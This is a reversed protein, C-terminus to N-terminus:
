DRDTRQPSTIRRKDFDIDVDEGRVTFYAVHGWGENLESEVNRSVTAPIPRAGYFKWHKESVTSNLWFLFVAGDNLRVYLYSTYGGVGSQSVDVFLFGDIKRLASCGSVQMHERYAAYDAGLVKRLADLIVSQELLGNNCPYTGVYTALDRTSRLVPRTHQQQQEVASAAVALLLVIGITAQKVLLLKRRHLTHTSYAM